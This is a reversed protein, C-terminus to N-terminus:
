LNGRYIISCYLLAKSNRNQHFGANERGGIYSQLPIVRSV